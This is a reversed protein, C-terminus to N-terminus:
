SGQRTAKVAELFGPPLDGAKDLEDYFAQMRAVFPKTDAIEYTVGRQKMEDIGADAVDSM